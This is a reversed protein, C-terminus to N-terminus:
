WNGRHLDVCIDEIESTLGSAANGKFWFRWGDDKSSEQWSQRNRHSELCCSSGVLDEERQALAGRSARLGDIAKPIVRVREDVQSGGVMMDAVMVDGDRTVAHSRSASSSISYTLM